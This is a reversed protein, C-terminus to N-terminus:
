NFVRRFGTNKTGMRRTSRKENKTRRIGVTRNGYISSLFSLFYFFFFFREVLQLIIHEERIIYIFSTPGVHRMKEDREM